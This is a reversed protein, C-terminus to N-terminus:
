RQLEKTNDKGRGQAADGDQSKLEDLRPLLNKELQAELSLKQQELEAREVAVAGLKRQIDQADSIAQDLAAEEEKSLSKKFESKMEAHYSEQQALFNKITQEVNELSREKSEISDRLN